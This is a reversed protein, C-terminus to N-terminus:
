FEALTVTGYIARLEIHAPSHGDGLFGVVEDASPERRRRLREPLSLRGRPARASVRAHVGRRIRATIDGRYSAIRYHGGAMAEGQVRVDGKIVHIELERVKVRRATVNGDKVSTELRPGRIVDLDVDGVLSRTEIDGYIHEFRQKGEAIDAVIPGSVQAVAIDGENASVQAGNDLGRVRLRGNWVTAELRADRPVRIVLDIRASGAAIPRAERSPALQTRISVPGSPDQVMKVELRELTVEDPAHKVAFISLGPGDHGVIRIDGLRNDVQLRTIHTGPPPTAELLDQVYVGAPAPSSEPSVGSGPDAAAVGPILAAGLVLGALRTALRM